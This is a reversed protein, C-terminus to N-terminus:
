WHTKATLASNMEKTPIVKAYMVQSAHVITIRGFSPDGCGQKLSLNPQICEGLSNIPLVNVHM